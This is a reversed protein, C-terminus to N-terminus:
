ALELIDRLPVRLVNGRLDGFDVRAFKRGVSVVRGTHVVGLTRPHFARVIDGAKLDTATVSSSGEDLHGTGDQPVRPIRRLKAITDM